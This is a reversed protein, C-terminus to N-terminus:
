PHFRGNINSELQLTGTNLKARLGRGRLDNHGFRIYVVDSTQIVNTDTDYSLTDTHIVPSGRSTNGTVVVNGSLLLSRRDPPMRGSESTVTWVENTETRYDLKLDSLLVSQDSLQQEINRARVVIRPRGDPGMETLTADTLYYGRREEIDTTETEDRDGSLMTYLLGLGAVGALIWLFWQAALPPREARPRV